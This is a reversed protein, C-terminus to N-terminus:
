PRADFPPHLDKDLRSRMLWGQGIRSLMHQAFWYSDTQKANRAHIDDGTMMMLDHDPISGLGGKGNRGTKLYGDSGKKRLM